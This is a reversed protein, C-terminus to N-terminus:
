KITKRLERAQNLMGRIQTVKKGAVASKFKKLIRITVDLSKAIEKSNTTCIDIWLVSDALAIRTTDRFGSATYKLVKKNSIVLGSAVLHVMQSVQATISDHKDPSIEVVKAGLNRWFRRVTDLAKEDTRGTKTVFCVRGKFLDRTAGLPGGKESGAMPHSGVFKVKKPLTEELKEVIYKKTSGADTMIAGEKAFRAAKRGLEVIKLVPTALIIFDADRVGDKLSLTTTDVAGVRRAKRL